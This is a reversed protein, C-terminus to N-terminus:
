SYFMHSISFDAPFTATLVYINFSLKIIFFLFYKNTIYFM